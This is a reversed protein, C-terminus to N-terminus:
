TGAVVASRIARRTPPEPRKVSAGGHPQLRGAGVNFTQPAQDQSALKYFMQLSIGHRRCFTTLSFADVEDSLAATLAAALAEHEEPPGHTQPRLGRRERPPRQAIERAVAGRERDEVALDAPRSSPKAKM